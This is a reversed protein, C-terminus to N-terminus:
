PTTADLPRVSQEDILIQLLFTETLGQKTYVIVKVCTVKCTRAILGTAITAQDSPWCAQKWKMWVRGIVNLLLKLSSGKRNRSLVEMRNPHTKISFHFHYISSM